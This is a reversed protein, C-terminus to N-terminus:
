PTVTLPTVMGAAYHGPVNCIILYTGPTLTVDLLNSQNPQLGGTDGMVKVQDEVVKGQSYDYPLPAEPDNVAVIIMEHLMGRSWNVVDFHITGAKVSPQDIRIAMMGHGMMGDGMGRRMMEPQSWGLGGSDAGMMGQGDSMMGRGMMGRGAPGRGMASSMDTLAVKMRVEAGALTVLTLSSLVAITINTLRKM